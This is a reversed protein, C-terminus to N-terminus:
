WALLLLPSMGLVLPIPLAPAYGHRALLVKFTIALGVLIGLASLIAGFLGLMFYLLSIELSYMVVDGMGLASDGIRVVFGLLTDAAKQAREGHPKPPGLSRIIKGLLGKYVMVADYASFALLIMIITTNPLTHGLFAGALSGMTLLVPTRAPGVYILVPIAVALAITAVHYLAVNIPLGIVALLYMYIGSIGYALIAWLILSVARILSVKGHKIFFYIATTAVLVIALLIVTNWAAASPTEEQVYPGELPLKAISAAGFLASAAISMVAVYIVAVVVRSLM